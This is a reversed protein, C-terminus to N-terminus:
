FIIKTFTSHSDCAPISSTKQILVISQSQSYDINIKLGKEKEFPELVLFLFRLDESHTQSHFFLSGPSLLSVLEGVSATDAFRQSFTALKLFPIYNYTFKFYM